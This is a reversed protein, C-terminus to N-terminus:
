KKQEEKRSDYYNNVAELFLDGLESQKTKIVSRMSSGIAGFEVLVGAEGKFNRLVALNSNVPKDKEATVISSSKVEDMISNALKNSKELNEGNGQVMAFVGKKSGSDMHISIFIDANKETAFDTRWILKKGKPHPHNSSERTLHVEYKSNTDLAEQIAKSLILVYESEKDMDKGTGFTTGGDDWGRGEPEDGHGPDIVIVFKKSIKQEVTTKPKQSCTGATLETENCNDKTM